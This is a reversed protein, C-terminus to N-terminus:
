LSQLKKITGAPTEHLIGIGGANEWAVINSKKDDVLVHGPRAFIAKHKGKLTSTVVVHPDVYQKTWAIKDTVVLPRNIEGSCTLIEWPLNSGKVYAVLDLMGPMPPMNRFLRKNTFEIKRDDYTQEGHLPGNLYDPGEVATVFDALVGDMDLYIKKIM